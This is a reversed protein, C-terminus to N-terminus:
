IISSFHVFVSQIEAQFLAFICDRHARSSASLHVHSRYVYVCQDSCLMVGYSDYVYMHICIATSRKNWISTQVFIFIIASALIDAIHRTCPSHAVCIGCGNQLPLADIYANQVCEDGILITCNWVPLPRKRTRGMEGKHICLALCMSLLARKKM